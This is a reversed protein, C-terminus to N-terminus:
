AILYFPDLNSINRISHKCTRSALQIGQDGIITITLLTCIVLCDNWPNSDQHCRRTGPRWILQRSKKVKFYPLRLPTGYIVALIVYWTSLIHLDGMFHDEAPWHAVHPSVRPVTSSSFCTETCGPIFVVDFHRWKQELPPLLSSSFRCFHDGMSVASCNSWLPQKRHSGVTDKCM